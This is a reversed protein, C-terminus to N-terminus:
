LLVMLALVVGMIAACIVMVVLPGYLFVESLKAFAM